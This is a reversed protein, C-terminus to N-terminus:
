LLFMGDFKEMSTLIAGILFMWATLDSQKLDRYWKKDESQMLTLMFLSMITTTLFGGNWRGYDFEIIYCPLLALVTLASAGVALKAFRGETMSVTRRFAYIYMAALPIMLLYFIIAKIIQSDNILAMTKNAHYSADAAFIVHDFFNDHPTYFGGSRLDILEYAQELTIITKGMSFLMLYVFMACVVLITVAYVCVNRVTHGQSDAFCRYTFIIFVMPFLVAAFIQHILMSCACLLPIVFVWSNNKYLIYICIFSLLYYYIDIRLVLSKEFYSGFVPSLIYLGTLFILIQRTKADKAKGAMKVIIFVMLFLCLLYMTMALTYFRTKSLDDGLILYFITGIIGRQVFGFHFYDVFYPAESFTITRMFSDCIYKFATFIFWCVLLKKLRSKLFIYHEGVTSDNAYLFLIVNASWFTCTLPLMIDLKLVFSVTMLAAESFILIAYYAASVKRSWQKRLKDATYFSIYIFFGNALNVPLRPPMYDGPIIRLPSYLYKFFSTRGFPLISTDSIDNVAIFSDMFATNKGTYSITESLHYHLFLSALIIAATVALLLCLKKRNESPRVLIRSLFVAAIYPFFIFAFRLDALAAGCCLVPVLFLLRDRVLLYAAAATLTFSVSANLVFSDLILVQTLIFAILCSTIVFGAFKQRDSKACHKIIGAACLSIIFGMLVYLLKLSNSIVMANVTKPILFGILSNPLMGQGESATYYYFLTVPDDFYFDNFIEISFIMFLAFFAATIYRGLFLATYRKFADSESVAAAKKRCKLVIPSAEFFEALYDLGM